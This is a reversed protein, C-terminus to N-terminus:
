DTQQQGHGNGHEAQTRTNRGDAAPAGGGYVHGALLRVGKLRLQELMAILDVSMFSIEDILVVQGGFLGHLVNKQVLSHATVAGAGINRAGTHTLCICAVQLGNEELAARLARLCASKGTGAAGLCSM